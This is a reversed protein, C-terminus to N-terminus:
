HVLLRMEIKKEKKKTPWHKYLHLTLYDTVAYYWLTNNVQRLVSYFSHYSNGLYFVLLDIHLNEQFLGDLTLFFFTQLAHYVRTTTFHLSSYPLYAKM